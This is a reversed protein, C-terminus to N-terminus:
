LYMKFYAKACKKGGKAYMRGFNLIPVGDVLDGVKFDDTCLEVPKKASDGLIEESIDMKDLLDGSTEFEGIFLTGQLFDVDPHDRGFARFSKGTELDRLRFTAGSKGLVLFKM